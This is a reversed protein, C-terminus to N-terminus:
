KVQLTINPHPFHRSIYVNCFVFVASSEQSKEETCLEPLLTANLELLHLELDSHDDSVDIDHTGLQDGM